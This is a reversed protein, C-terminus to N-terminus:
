DNAPRLTDPAARAIPGALNEHLARLVREPTIPLDRVRAGPWTLLASV